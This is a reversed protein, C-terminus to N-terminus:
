YYTYEDFTGKSNAFSHIDDNFLNAKVPEKETSFAQKIIIPVKSNIGNSDKKNDLITRKLNLIRGEINNDTDTNWSEKTEKPKNYIKKNENLTTEIYNSGRNEKDVSFVEKGNITVRRVKGKSHDNTDTNLLSFDQTSSRYRHTLNAYSPNEYKKNYNNENAFSIRTQQMEPSRTFRNPSNNRYYEFNDSMDKRDYSINSTLNNNQQNLSYNTQKNASNPVSFNNEKYMTTFTFPKQNEKTNEQLQSLKLKQKLEDYKIELNNLRSSLTLNENLIKQYSTKQNSSTSNDVNTSKKIANIEKDKMELAYTCNELKKKVIEIESKNSKLKELENIALNLKSKTTMFSEVLDKLDQKAKNNDSKYNEIQTNASKLKTKLKEIMKESNNYLNKYKDREDELHKIQTNVRNIEDNKVGSNDLQTKLVTIQQELAQRQAILTNMRARCDKEHLSSQAMCDKLKKDLDINEKELRRVKDESVASTAVSLKKNEAKLDSIYEEYAKSLERKEEHIKELEKKTVTLEQTLKDLQEQSTPNGAMGKKDMSLLLKYRNDNSNIHETSVPRNNNVQGNNNKSPQQFSSHLGVNRSSVKLSVPNRNYYETMFTKDDTEDAKPNSSKKYELNDYKKSKDKITNESEMSSNKADPIAISDLTGFLAYKVKENIEPVPKHKKSKQFFTIFNRPQIVSRSPKDTVITEMCKIPKETPLYRKTPIISYSGRRGISSRRSKNRSSKRSQM